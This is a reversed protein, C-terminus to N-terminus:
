LFLVVVHPRREGPRYSVVFVMKGQFEASRQPPEPERPSVVALSPLPEFFGQNLVQPRRRLRSGLGQIPHAPQRVLLTIYVPRFRSSFLTEFQASFGFDPAYDRSVQSVYQPFRCAMPTVMLSRLLQEFLAQREM